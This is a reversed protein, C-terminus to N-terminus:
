NERGLNQKRATEAVRTLFKPKTVFILAPLLTLAAFSSYAMTGMMLLGMANTAGMESLMLVAFGAAVSAANIVIAKGSTRMTNIFAQHFGDGQILQAKFRELFHITYDVGIGLSISACLVTGTNIKWGLLLILGFNTLITFVLPAMAFLGGIVSRFIFFIIIFIFITAQIISSVQSIVLLNGLDLSVLSAGGISISEIYPDDDPFAKAIIRKLAATYKANFVTLMSRAMIQCQFEKLDPSIMANFQDRDSNQAQNLVIGIVGRNTMAPDALNDVRTDPIKKYAPNEDHYFLSYMKRVLDVPSVVFGTPGVTTDGIDVSPEKLAVLQERLNELKHLVYPQKVDTAFLDQLENWCYVMQKGFPTAKLGRMKVITEGTREWSKEPYGMRQNLEKLGNVQATTYGGFAENVASDASSELTEALGALGDSGGYVSGTTATQEGLLAALDSEDTESAGEGENQIDIAYEENLLDNMLAITQEMKAIDSGSRQVMLMMEDVFAKLGTDDQYTEGSFLDIWTDTFTMIRKQLQDQVWGNKLNVRDRFTFLLTTEGTGTLYRDIFDSSMRIPHNQDFEAAMSGEFQLTHLRLAAIVSVVAFFAIAIKPAKSVVASWGVLIQELLSPSAGKKQRGELQKQSPMRWYCLIAPSLTLTLLLAVIIGFSTFIAYHRIFLIPAGILSAFGAFTTLGAMLIAAGVSLISKRLIERRHTLSRADEYYRNLLHIGYASGVALLVVPVTGTALSIPTGTLAQLGLAWIVSLVVTIFPIVVGRLSRFSITLMVMVALLGVPLLLVLSNGLERYMLATVAPEGTVYTKMDASTKQELIERTRDYMELMDYVKNVDPLQFELNEHSAPDINELMFDYLKATFIDWTTMDPNMFFDRKQTIRLIEQFRERTLPGAFQKELEPHQAFAPELCDELYDTLRKAVEKSHRAIFADDYVVDDITKGYVEFPFSSTKGQFRAKLLHPDLATGLELSIYRQKYEWKSIMPVNIITAKGDTSLLVGRFLRDNLVHNKLAPIIKLLDEDSEPLLAANTETFPIGAEKKLKQIVSGTVVAGTEKDLIADELGSISIFDDLDFGIPLEISEVKGTLESHITKRTKVAKLATVIDEIARLVPPNMIGKESSEIGILLREVYEFNKRCYDNTRVSELDSPLFKTLDVDVYANTIIQYIFFVTLGTVALIIAKPYRTSFRGIVGM